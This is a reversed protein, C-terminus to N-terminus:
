IARNQQNILEKIGIPGRALGTLGTRVMEIVEFDELLKLFADVKSLDGTLEIM